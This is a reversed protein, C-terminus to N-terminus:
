AGHARWGLPEAFLEYARGHTRELAAWLEDEGGALALRGALKPAAGLLERLDDGEAHQALEPAFLVVRREAALAAQLAGLPTWGPAAEPAITERLWDLLRLTFPASGLGEDGAFALVVTQGARALPLYRLGVLAEELTAEWPAGGATILMADASEAQATDVPKRAALREDVALAALDAALGQGPTLHLVRDVAAGEPLAASLDPLSPLVALRLDAGAYFRDEASRWANVEHNGAVDDGYRRVAARGLVPDATGPCCLFGVRTPRVGAEVLMEVLAPLVAEYPAPFTLDGLLVTARRKGKALDRLAELESRVDEAPMRAAESRVPRPVRLAVGEPPSLTLGKRGLALLLQDPM